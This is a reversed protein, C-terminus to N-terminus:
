GCNLKEIIALAREYTLKSEFHSDSPALLDQLRSKGFWEHEIVPNNNYEEISYGTKEIERISLEFGTTDWLTLVEKDGEDEFDIEVKTGYYKGELPLLKAKM